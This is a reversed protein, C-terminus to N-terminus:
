DIADEDKKGWGVRVQWKVGGMLWAGKIVHCLQESGMVGGSIVQLRCWWKVGGRLWVGKTGPYSM